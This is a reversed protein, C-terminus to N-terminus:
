AVAKKNLGAVTRQSYATFRNAWKEFGITDDGITSSPKGIIEAIKADDVKMDLLLDALDGILEKAQNREESTWPYEAPVEEVTSAEWKAPTAGPITEVEAEDMM